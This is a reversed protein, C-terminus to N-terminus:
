ASLYRDGRRLRRRGAPLSAWATSSHCKPHGGCAPKAYGPPRAVLHLRRLARRNCSSASGASLARRGRCWSASCSCRWCGRASSARFSRSINSCAKCGDALIAAALIAILVFFGVFVRGVGVLERQSARKRVAAYLDMTAITSASNLMAALSSVVARIARGVCVLHHRAQALAAVLHRLGFRLRPRCCAAPRGDPRRRGNGAITRQRGDVGARHPGRSRPPAPVPSAPM